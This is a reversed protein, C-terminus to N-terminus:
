EDMRELRNGITIILISPNKIEKGISIEFGFFIHHCKPPHIKNRPRTSPKTLVENLPGDKHSLNLEPDKM